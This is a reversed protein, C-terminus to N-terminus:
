CCPNAPKQESEQSRHYNVLGEMPESFINGILYSFSTLVEKLIDQYLFAISGVFAVPLPQFRDYHNLQATVFDEFSSKILTRIFPHNKRPLLFESFSALYRNPYPRNYLSNLIDSLSYSYLGDFATRLEAPATKKLYASMWRKGLNSGAGEDGFMYGLSDVEQFCRTGDYYCSNCGTGLIAAISRFLM